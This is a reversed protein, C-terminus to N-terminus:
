AFRDAVAVAVDAVSVGLADAIARWRTVAPPQEGSEWDSVTAQSVGIRLALDKQKLGAVARAGAFWRWAAEAKVPEAVADM